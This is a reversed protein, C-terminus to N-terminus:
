ATIKRLLAFVLWLIVAYTIIYTIDITQHNRYRNGSGASRFPAGSCGCGCNSKAIPIEQISTKEVKSNDIIQVM